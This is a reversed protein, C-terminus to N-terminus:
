LSVARLHFPFLYSDTPGWVIVSALIESGSCTGVKIDETVCDLKIQLENKDRKDDEAMQQCTDRLFSANQNMQDYQSMSSKVVDKLISFGKILEEMQGEMEESKIRYRELDSNIQKLSQAAM